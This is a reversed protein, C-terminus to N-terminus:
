VSLGLAMEHTRASYLGASSTHVLMGVLMPFRTSLIQSVHFPRCTHKTFPEGSRTRFSYRNVTSIVMTDLLMLFCALACSGVILALKFGTVYENEDHSKIDVDGDEKNDPPRSRSPMDEPVLKPSVSKTDPVEVM